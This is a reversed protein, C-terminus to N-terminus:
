KLVMKTFLSKANINYSELGDTDSDHDDDQAALDSIVDINITILDFYM